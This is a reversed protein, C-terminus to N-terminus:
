HKVKRLPGLNLTFGQAKQGLVEECLKMIIATVGLGENVSAYWLNDRQHPRMLQLASTYWHFAMQLDGVLLSIDAIHKEMRAKIVTPSLRNHALTHHTHHPHKSPLSYAILVTYM